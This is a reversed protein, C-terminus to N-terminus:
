KVLKIVSNTNNQIVKLFYIGRQLASTNISQQFTGANKIGSATWLIKGSVDVLLLKYEGALGGTINIEIHDAFPNPYAKVGVQMTPATADSIAPANLSAAFGAPQIRYFASSPIVQKSVGPGSYSVSLTKDGARQFYSVSIAHKGAKLGIVGSKEVAGHLGNNDTVLVNDIYLLSGDDSNTYFTYQGDSPVNIYGSFTFGFYTSRNALALNITSTTGTKVPTLTSFNPVTTYTNSIEYYSYDLGNVTNPPNVAPLLGGGGLLNVTVKVTDMDSAGANDTVKLQFLYVGQVLATVTTVASLLNTITGLSPGSIKTWTYSAITGDADTGKGNLTAIITPLTIVIDAGADAVPPQNGGTAAGNKILIASSYPALTISGNYTVNKVDLYKYPLSITKSSGTENYVFKLDSTDTIAKPSGKSHKELGTSSQWGALNQSVTGTTLRLMMSLNDDMPRAYYNSDATGMSGVPFAIYNGYYNTLEGVTKAVFINNKIINNQVRNNDDDQQFSLVHNADYATNHHINLEHADHLFISYRMIHYVSNGSIEVQQAGNDMYIGDVYNKAPTPTGPIAGIGNMIINNQVKRGTYVHPTSSGNYTYIGGGDDLILCFYNIFNNSVITSNGDFSIANFGSNVVSNYQIVAATGEARIGFANRNTTKSIMGSFVGTNTITNHVITANQGYFKGSTEYGAAYVSNNNSNSISCNQVTLYPSISSSIADTGSFNITCGTITFNSASTIKITATNAGQFNVSNITIYNMNSNATVLVDVSAVQVNTPSSTSYIRLKKTSSNYYWENQQDLTRVDNQIFFGFNDIGDDGSGSSYTLTTGSQATILSRDIVGRNKRIVVEAGTWNTAGLSSSTISTHGVHSQFTLYGSNPYRGMAYNVGNAAVMNVSSLSSVTSASEWINSGLNTWASITKFGTVVPNAGSGYAGITIPSGSAGSKTITISGYFTEGRNLLINDGAKLSAFFSNLKTLSKWPTTTSTGNNNDNGSNSIYYTTANATFGIILFLLITFNKMSSTQKTRISNNKPVRNTKLLNYEQKNILTFRILPFHTLHFDV